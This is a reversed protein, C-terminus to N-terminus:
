SISRPSRMGNLFEGDVEHYRTGRAMHCCPPDFILGIGM